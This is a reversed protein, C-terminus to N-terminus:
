KKICRVSYGDKKFVSTGHYVKDIFGAMSYSYARDFSEDTSTWWFGWNNINHFKGKHISFSLRAGGPLATFGSENDTISENSFWHETGAEKLKAAAVEDGGYKNILIDLDAQSPVKWGEPCLKDTNVAHWNYLAGYTQAYKASDNNYWCFGPTTLGDWELSDTYNPIPSGDNYKTTKLDQKLWVQTGITVTEYNNGDADKVNGEAEKQTIFSKVSGYGTGISNTAYARVYYKTNPILDTLASTFSGVGSGDSTKSDNLTPNDNTSWVVGRVSIDDGGDSMISGGSKASVEDIDIVENTELSPILKETKKKCGLNVIVILSFLGILSIYLTKM